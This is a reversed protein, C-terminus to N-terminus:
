KQKQKKTDTLENAEAMIVVDRITTPKNTAKIIMRERYSCKGCEHKAPTIDMHFFEDGGM